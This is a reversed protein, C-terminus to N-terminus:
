PLNTQKNQKTQKNTQKNTLSHMTDRATSKTGKSYGQHTAMCWPTKIHYLLEQINFLQTM